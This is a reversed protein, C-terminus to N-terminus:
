RQCKLVQEYVRETKEAIKDWSYDKAKEKANRSMRNRLDQNELLRLIANALASEDGRKTVLGNFGDVVTSKFTQLDSVVLPLGSLAAELLVLPSVEKTMTSPLVFVDASKYYLAKSEGGIFGTFRVCNEIGLRVSLDELDKRLEGRGVFVLESKPVSKIVRPMAKLLVDPGKYPVLDGVFLIINRDPPLGVIERCEKASYPVEFDQAEVGNPIVVLKDQYKGLFRSENVYYESPSIIIRAYSLLKDLVYKNYLSLSLRRMFKGYGEPADGHYTLILPIRRRKAYWLGALEGPPTSFHAHVLDVQEKLPKWFMKSSINASEIKFNTGYRHVVVGEQIGTSDKSDISSTFVSAQHGRQAMKTALFYAVTETGGHSYQEAYDAETLLNKYPFHSCFYGIIM